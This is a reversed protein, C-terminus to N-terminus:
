CTVRNGVKKCSLSVSIRMIMTSIFHAFHRQSLLLDLLLVLRCQYSTWLDKM